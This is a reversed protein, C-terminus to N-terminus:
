GIPVERQRALRTCTPCQHPLSDRLPGTFVWGGCISALADERFLHATHSLVPQAWGEHVEKM